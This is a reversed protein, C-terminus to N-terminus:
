NGKPLDYVFADVGKSALTQEILAAIVRWSGGALGSGLRPMHVSAGRTSAFLAITTLGAELAEYRIPPKNTQGRIGYQGVLNAVWLAESVGVFQVAGLAFPQPEEGRYWAKYRQRATPYRQALAVVFGAGWFGADNCCHAIIKPGNGEPQTADGVRYQLM